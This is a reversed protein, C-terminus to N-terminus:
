KTARLQATLARAAEVSEGGAKVLASGVIFGDTLQTVLKVHAPTSIGFGMV